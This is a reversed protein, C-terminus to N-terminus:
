NIGINERLGTPLTNEEVIFTSFQGVEGKVWLEFYLM